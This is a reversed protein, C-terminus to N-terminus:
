AALRRQWALSSEFMSEYQTGHFHKRLQAYNSVVREVPQGVKVTSSQLSPVIEAGLFKQMQVSITETQTCLDEYWVTMRPAAAFDREFGLWSTTVMEFHQELEHPDVSLLQLVPRAQKETAQWCRHIRAQQLSVFQEFMNGRRICIYRVNALTRLHQWINWPENNSLHLLFGRIRQRGPYWARKRLVSEASHRLWRQTKKWYKNFIEGEVRINPHGNLISGLMHTGSRPMTAVVFLTPEAHSECGFYVRLQPVYRKISLIM